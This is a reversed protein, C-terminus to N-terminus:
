LRPSRYSVVLQPLNGSGETDDGDNAVMHDSINDGNAETSFRLRFESRARNASVNAQVAATVDLTKWEEATTTSLTGINRTINGGDYDDLSVDEGLDVHDVVLNGIKSYPSGQVREQYVRLTASEIVASDAIGGTEFCLVSAIADNNILGDNDGAFLRASTHLFGSKWIYGDRDPVSTYTRDHDEWALDSGGGGCAAALLAGLTFIAVIGKTTRM